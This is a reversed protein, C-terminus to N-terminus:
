VVTGGGSFRTPFDAVLRDFVRRWLSRTSLNATNLATILTLVKAPTDYALVSPDPYAFVQVVDNVDLLGVVIAPTPEVTISLSGPRYSSITPPTPPVIPTGLNIIEAM